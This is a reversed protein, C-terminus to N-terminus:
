GLPPRRGKSRRPKAEGLEPHARLWRALRRDQDKPIVPDVDNAGTTPEDPHSEEKTTVVSLIAQRRIEPTSVTRTEEGPVFGKRLMYLEDLQQTFTGAKRFAEVVILYQGAFRADTAVDATFLGEEATGVAGPTLPVRSWTGAPSHIRAVIDADPVPHPCLLRARIRFTDGRNPHRPVATAELRVASNVEFGISRLGASGLNSGIVEVEWTGPMPAEIEYFGYPNPGRIARVQPGAPVPNGNPDFIRVRIGKKGIRWLAGLTAHTSGESITVPFRLTRGGTEGFSEDVPGFFPVDEDIPRGAGDIGDFAVVGGNERSEGAIQV